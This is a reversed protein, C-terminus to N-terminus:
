RGNFLLYPKSGPVDRTEFDRDSKEYNQRDQTGPSEPRSELRSLITSITLKSSSNSNPAKFVILSVSTSFSLSNEKDPPKIVFM